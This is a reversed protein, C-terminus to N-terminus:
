TDNFQDTNVRCKIFTCIHLILLSQASGQSDLSLVSIFNFILHFLHLMNHDYMLLDFLVYNIDRHFVIIVLALLWLFTELGIYNNTDFIINFQRWFELYAASIFPHYIPSLNKWHRFKLRARRFTVFTPKGCRSKLTGSRAHKTKSCVDM